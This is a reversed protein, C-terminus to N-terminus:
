APWGGIRFSVDMLLKSSARFKTLGGLKRGGISLHTGDVATPGLQPEERYLRWPLKIFTRLDRRSSVPRIEVSM